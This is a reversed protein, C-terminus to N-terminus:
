FQVSTPEFDKVNRTVVTLKNCLATTAILKDVGILM